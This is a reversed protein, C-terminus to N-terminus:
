MVNCQTKAVADFVLVEPIVWCRFRCCAGPSPQMHVDCDGTGVEPEQEYITLFSGVAVSRVWIAVCVLYGECSVLHLRPSRVRGSVTLM